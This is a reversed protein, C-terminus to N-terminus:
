AGTYVDVATPIDGVPETNGNQIADLLLEIGQKGMDDPYQAVTGAMKGEDVLAKGDDTADFGVVFIEGTLGADEIAQVVGMAMQDNAAFVGKIDPHAQFVNQFVNYGKETEWDAPQSEVCKLNSGELADRFGDCRSQSVLQGAVGELVCVEVEGEADKFNEIMLEAAMKGGESNDTGVFGLLEGGEEALFDEDLKSDACVCPIGAENAKKITPILAEASAPVFLIGDVGKAIANEMMSIQEEDSQHTTPGDINIKIGAADAAAQAGEGLTIYFPNDMTKLLVEIEIDGADAAPAAEESASSAAEEVEAEAESAASSAAEEAAPAASSASDSSGGGCGVIAASALLAALILGLTKRKM